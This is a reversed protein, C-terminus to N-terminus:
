RNELAVGKNIKYPSNKLEKQIARLAIGSKYALGSQLSNFYVVKATAFKVSRARGRKVEGNKTECGIKKM